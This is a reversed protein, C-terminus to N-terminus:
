PSTHQDWYLWNLSRNNFWYAAQYPNGAFYISKANPYFIVSGDSFGVHWGKGNGWHGSTAALASSGSGHYSFIYNGAMFRDSVLSIRHRGMKPPRNQYTPPNTDAGWRAQNWNVSDYTPAPETSERMVYSMRMIWDSSPLSFMNDSKRIVNWQTEYASYTVNSALDDSPSYCVKGTLLKDHVLIM